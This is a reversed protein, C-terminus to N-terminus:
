TRISKDKKSQSSQPKEIENMADVKNKEMRHTVAKEM